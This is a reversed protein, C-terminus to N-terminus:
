NSVKKLAEEIADRLFSPGYESVMKDDVFFTPTARIGLLKVAQTDKEILNKIKPSEMDKKLKEMNLNLSELYTWILEPRPNEHSGWEPQYKYLIQLTEWYLNQERAAELIKIAFVSNTHFPAYRLVLQIKGSYDNLFSQLYPHFERCSECEPDFFETIIVRADQTGKRVSLDSRLLDNNQSVQKTVEDHQDKKVIYSGVIFVTVLFIVSSIVLLFSKNKM